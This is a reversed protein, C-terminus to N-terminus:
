RGNGCGPLSQLGSGGPRSRQQTARESFLRGNAFAAGRQVAARVLGLVPQSCRTLVVPFLAPLNNAAPQMLAHDRQAIAALGSLVERGGPSAAM